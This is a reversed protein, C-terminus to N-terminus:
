IACQTLSLSVPAALATVLLCMMFVLLKMMVTGLSFCIIYCM